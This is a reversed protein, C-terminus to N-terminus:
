WGSKTSRPFFITQLTHFLLMVSMAICVSSAQGVAVPPTKFGEGKECEVNKEIKNRGERGLGGRRLAGRQYECNM